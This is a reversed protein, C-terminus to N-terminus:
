INVMDLASDGSIDERLLDYAEELLAGIRLLDATRQLYDPSSPQPPSASDVHELMAEWNEALGRSIRPEILDPSASTQSLLEVAQALHIIIKDLAIPNQQALTASENLLQELQGQDPQTPLDLWDRMKTRTALVQKHLADQAIPVKITEVWQTADLYAQTMRDASQLDILDHSRQNLMSQLTAANNSPWAPNLNEALQKELDNSQPLKPQLDTLDKNLLGFLDRIGELLKVITQASKWKAAPNGSSHKTM